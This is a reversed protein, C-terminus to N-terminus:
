DVRLFNGARDFKLEMGNSLNVEYGRREVEIGVIKAGKYNKSVYTSIAKPIVSSPVAEMGCEVSRWSGDTDFEIETGDKLIVDYECSNRKKDVKIHNVGKKFNSKLFTQAKPPLVSVDTSVYDRAYSQTIFATLFALLVILHKM